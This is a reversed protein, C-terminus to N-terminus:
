STKLPPHWRLRQHPTSTKMLPRLKMAGLEEDITQGKEAEAPTKYKSTAEQEQTTKWNIRTFRPPVSEAETPHRAEPQRSPLSPRSDASAWSPTSFSLDPTQQVGEKLYREWREEVVNELPNRLDATPGPESQFHEMEPDGFYLRALSPPAERAKGKPQEPPPAPKMRTTTM